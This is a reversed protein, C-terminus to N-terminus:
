ASTTTEPQTTSTTTVVPEPSTTPESSSVPQTVDGSAAKEEASLTKLFEDKLAEYEYPTNILGDDDVFDLDDDDEFTDLGKSEAYVSLANFMEAKLREFMSLQEDEVVECMSIPDPHEDREPLEVIVVTFHGLTDVTIVTDRTFESQFYRDSDSNPGLIAFDEQGLTGSSVVFPKVARITVRSRTSLEVNQTGEFNLRKEM